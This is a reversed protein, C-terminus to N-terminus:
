GPRRTLREMGGIALMTAGLVTLFVGADFGMASALELPGAVPLDWHGHASTLFPMGFLWAAFGTTGATLLGAAVLWEGTRPAPHSGTAISHILVAVSAVLGAVFGGGPTNHGRLFIHLGVVLALPLLGRAVTVFLLEPSPEGVPREPLLRSVALVTLGAIGLVSIEGYTDFGRFDVLIVNVVNAGGGGPVSERLYYEALRAFGEFGAPDRILMAYALAGIGIGGAIAVAMLGLRAPAPTEAPTVHPLVRLALLMLLVMVVEVAIQTLALDPASLFLFGLSVMLGVISVLLLSMFRRRHLVTLALTAGTLMVWGAIVTPPAPLPPRAGPEFAGTIFAAFGGLTTAVTMAILGTRLPRASLRDLGRAAIVLGRICLDHITAADPLPVEGMDKGRRALFIAAGGALAMASLALAPSFGHWLALHLGPDSGTAATAAAGILPEALMGPALGLAVALCALLAAPILLAPTAEEVEAETRRPGGFIGWVFRATYAVSLAAGFTVLVMVFPGEAQAADLMMEKSVFGGFPPVGAMSLGGLVAVAATVPMARGLGGLRTLDRAHAAHAVIGAVMFLAAKFVAHNLVHLLAGAAAAQTGFGLLMTVIGLHSVTSGALIAKLDTRTLALAAGLLFTAIGAATVAGQWLATGALVPWLRALLFVGAKVMTASHLYASVPTPAAMAKALWFHLPFQASKAFAGILILALAAPYFTSAQVADRRLLIESFEMSGAAKGLLLMGAILALGGGGTVALSMRAGRRAEAMAPWYGILLFSLLSTAEWFVLLLLINGSLVIGLMATQFCLVLAMFRGLRDDGPMYGHAYVIVCLGIGSILLAFLLGLGDLRFSLDLGLGPLWDMRSASVGGSLIQPAALALGALVALTALAATVVAASRGARAALPLFLAAGAPLLILLLIPM